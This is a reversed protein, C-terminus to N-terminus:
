EERLAVLPDVMAARQAPVLCALASVTLLFLATALFTPVHYPTIGFLMGGLFRTFGLAGAVGLGIGILALRVGRGLVLAVIRDARAGLAMRVGIERVREGVAYATVGYIGVLTLIVAFAGFTSLILTRFRPEAVTREVLDDIATLDTLPITPDLSGVQHRLQKAMEESTIGSRVVVFMAVPWGAQALPRYYMPEPERALSSQRVDGVVGIVTTWVEQQDGIRIRKGIPDEGPWFLSAMARNVMAVPPSDPGDTPTFGRGGLLPIALATLYDGSIINGAVTPEEGPEVDMGEPVVYRSFSHEGLPLSYALGTASVGPIAAVRESLGDFFRGRERAAAQALEQMAEETAAAGMDMEAPRPAVRAGIVNTPDFGPKVSSLRAFSTLLLGAGISLVIAVAIQAVVMLEQLRRGARGLSVSGREKLSEGIDARAGLLAPATGFAIGCGVSLMLTFALVAPDLGVNELRPLGAPAITVLMRLLLAALGLGLVGGGAALLVSETLAQRILRGPTAGIARRLALERKRAISRSLMLNAVNTCAVLTVLAVAGLFVLLATRANRVLFAHRSEVFVGMGRNGQEAEADIRAALAELETQAEEVSIGSKLRGLVILFNTDREMRTVDGRLPIWFDARSSPFAFGPPMVGVVTVSGGDLAIDQGVIGTRGGFRSQWIRHSLVVVPAAGPRDDDAGFSRGIM